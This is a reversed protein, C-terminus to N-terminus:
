SSGLGSQLPGHALQKTLSTQKDDETEIERGQILPFLQQLILFVKCHKLALMAYVRDSLSNFLDFCSLSFM